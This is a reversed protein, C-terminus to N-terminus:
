VTQMRWASSYAMSPMRIEELNTQKYMGALKCANSWSIDILWCCIGISSERTISQGENFAHLSASQKKLTFYGGERKLEEISGVYMDSHNTVAEISLRDASIRVLQLERLCLWGILDVPDSCLYLM